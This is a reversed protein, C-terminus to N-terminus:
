LPLDYPFRLEVLVVADRLEEDELFEPVDEELTDELLVAICLGLLELEEREEAREEADCFLREPEDLLLETLVPEDLVPEDLRLETLPELEGLFLEVRDLVVRELVELRFVLPYWGLLLLLEELLPFLEYEEGRLLLLREEPLEARDEPLELLLEPEVRDELEELEELDPLERDPLELLYVM